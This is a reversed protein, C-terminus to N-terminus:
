SQYCDAWGSLQLLCVKVDSLPTYVDSIQLDFKANPPLSTIAVGTAADLISALVVLLFASTCYRM